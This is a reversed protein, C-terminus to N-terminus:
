TLVTNKLQVRNILIFEMDKHWHSISSYDPYSSLFGYVVYAPFLPNNYAVTESFDPNFVSCYRTNNDM